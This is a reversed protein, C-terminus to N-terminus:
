FHLINQLFLFLNIIFVRRILALDIFHLIGEVFLLPPGDKVHGCSKSQLYCILPRYRHAPLRSEGKVSSSSIASEFLRLFPLAGSDLPMGASTSCTIPWRHGLTCICIYLAHKVTPNNELSHFLVRSTQILLFFAMIDQLGRQIRSLSPFSISARRLGRKRPAIRFPLSRESLCYPDPCPCGVTPATRSTDAATFAAYLTQCAALGM